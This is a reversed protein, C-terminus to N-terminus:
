ENRADQRTDRADQRADRADDRADQREDQADQREDQLADQRTERVDDRIEAQTATGDLQWAELVAPGALHVKPATPSGSILFGWILGGAAPTPTFHVRARLDHSGLRGDVKASSHGAQYHGNWLTITGDADQDVNGSLIGLRIRDGDLQVFPAIKLATRVIPATDPPLGVEGDEVRMRMELTADPPRSDLVAWGWVKGHVDPADGGLVEILVSQLDAAEVEVEARMSAAPRFLGDSLLRIHATQRGVYGVGELALTTGLFTIPVARLDTAEVPGLTVRAARGAGQGNMRRRGFDFRFGNMQGDIDEMVVPMGTADILVIQFGVLTARDIAIARVPWTQAEDLPAELAPTPVFITFGHARVRPLVVSRTRWSRSLDPLDILLEDALLTPTGPARASLAFGNVRWRWGAPDTWGTPAELRADGIWLSLDAPLLQDIPWALVWPRAVLGALAALSLAGAAFLALIARRWRRLGEALKM